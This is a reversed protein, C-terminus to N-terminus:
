DPTILANIFKDQNEEWFTKVQEITQTKLHPNFYGSGYQTNFEFDFWIILQGESNINVGCTSLGVYKPIEKTILRKMQNEASFWSFNDIKVDIIDKCCSANNIPNDLDLSNTHFKIPHKEYDHMPETMCIHILGVLPFGDKILGQIQTIGNSGPSKKPNKRTPRVVKVEIACTRNFFITESSYPIILIDFDGPKEGKNFGLKERITNTAIYFGVYKYFEDSGIPSFILNSFLNFNITQDHKSLCLRQILEPEAIFYDVLELSQFDLNNEM